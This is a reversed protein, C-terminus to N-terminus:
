EGNFETKVTKKYQVDPACLLEKREKKRGFIGVYRNTGYWWALVREKETTCDCGKKDLREKILTYRIGFNNQSLLSHNFAISKEKQWRQGM